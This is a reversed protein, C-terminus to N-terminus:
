AQLQPCYPNVGYSGSGGALTLPLLPPLTNPTQLTADRPIALGTGLTSSNYIGSRATAYDFYPGTNAGTVDMPVLVNFSDNGGDLYVCVLARYSPSGALASKSEAVARSIVSLQPALASAAGSALLAGMNRVFARRSRSTEYGM